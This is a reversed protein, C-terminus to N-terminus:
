RATWRVDNLRVGLTRPERGRPPEAHDTEIVLQRPGSAPPLDLDVDIDHDNAHVRAAFGNVTVTINAPTEAVFLALGLHAPADIAPLMAVSRQAMWRWMESGSANQEAGYWGDGFAIVNRVPMVSVEFYRHRTLDWLRGHPRSFVIAGPLADERLYWGPFPPPAMVDHLNDGDLLADAYPSMSGHVWIPTRRDVHARMWAAAQVPPSQTTHVITLAPWTWAIMVAVLAAAVAEEFVDRRAVLHIGDAALIAIMPAYGISFRSSSFHDLMLWAFLCFPVFAALLTLIPARRKVCSVVFSVTVFLAVPINIPLARYPRVFFDDFVKWLPPRQPSRFSDVQTIYQQHLRIAARYEDWGTKQAAIGYSAGVIAAGILTAIVVERWRRRASALLAPAFGILLNQPRFAASVGLVIAGLFYARPDRAGRLLLAVAVIVLTMSPVDSLGTGGFLWVNPFFALLAAATLSTAFPLRLERCLFFTAPVIAIAGVFAITQLAHFDSLGIAHLFDAFAIFLPFGPPHPHHISVDFHRMGLLFLMEDWDWPSAAVAFWRSVAAAVTVVALSM